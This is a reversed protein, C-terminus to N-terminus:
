DWTIRFPIRHFAQFWEPSLWPNACTERVFDLFGAVGLQKVKKAVAQSMLTITNIMHAIRMIYHFGIMANFNHSLLHEYCYGQKKEILMSTEIAWRRRAMLNCRVHLNKPTIPESSIWAHKSHKQIIQGDQPNLEEWTERCVVVHLIQPQTQNSGYSYNIHNVWEFKQHRGRYSRCSQNKPHLPLLSQYEEWVTPLSKDPLVIMFEWHYNRCWSLLPGNPYLGDLLLTIALRPFAAKIRQTLRYFARTECDQKERQDDGQSMSLVESMLPLSAGNSLVLNAELVYIYQQTTEGEELQHTRELWEEGWIVGQRSLKQTGDIAILYQKSVLFRRFKKKKIFAKLLELHASALQDPAVKSLLRNLTDAHPCSELEPFLQQLTELFCARSMKRNAERRSTMQFLASLIGFLFVVGLKHKCKKVQRPDEVQSLQKLLKLLMPRYAGIQAEVSEERAKQEAEFTKYPSQRNSTTTTKPPQLGKAQREQRMQARTKKVGDITHKREERNPRRSPKGM